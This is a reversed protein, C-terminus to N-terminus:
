KKKSAFRNDFIKKYTRNVYQNLDMTRKEYFNHKIQRVIDPVSKNSVTYPLLDFGASLYLEGLATSLDSLLLNEDMKSTISKLRALIAQQDSALSAQKRDLILKYLEKANKTQEKAISYENVLNQYRSYAFRTETLVTLTIAMLKLKEYELQADASDLAAPLSALNLLNWAVDVSKELWKSNILFKNSNYNWGPNLSVGPLAQLIATEVGQEAIRKQYSQGRLEPRTVLTIADLKKFNLNHLRQVQMLGKPPPLLTFHWDLPLNLLHKLDLIAKDYKNQLQVLNREGELLAEQFRLLNEKPISKDSIAFRLKNNASKLTRQFERTDKMLEQASYAEWYSRLVDQALQQLQKRAEETAILYRDGQQKARVYSIGFDLINWSLGLRMSRLTNPTSNLVDTIQGTSTTGFSALKNSRTYLSTSANIAPFMAYEALILQDAQLADNALKIRYDLNYKLGIALAHYYDLKQHTPGKNQAFLKKVDKKAETYREKVTMPQPSLTCSSLFVIIILLSMRRVM